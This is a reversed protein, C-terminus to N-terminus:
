AALPVVNLGYPTLVWQLPDATQKGDDDRPWVTATNGEAVWELYDADRRGAPLTSQSSANGFAAFFSSM